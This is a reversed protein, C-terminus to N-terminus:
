GEFLRVKLFISIKNNKYISGTETEYNVEIKSMGSMVQGSEELKINILDPNSTFFINRLFLYIKQNRLFNAEERDPFSSIKHNESKVHNLINKEKNEKTILICSSCVYCFFNSSGLYAGKLEHKEIKKTTKKKNVEINM